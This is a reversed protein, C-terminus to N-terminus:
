RQVEGDARVDDAGTPMGHTNGYTNANCLTHSLPRGHQAAMHAGIHMNTIATFPLPPPLARTTMLTTMYANAHANDAIITSSTFPLHNYSFSDVDVDM